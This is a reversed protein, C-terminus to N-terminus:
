TAGCVSIHHSGIDFLAELTRMVAQEVAPDHGGDCVVAVGRVRSYLESALVPSQGNETQVTIYSKSLSGENQQENQLFKGENGCDLTIMVQVRGVGVIGSLLATVRAELAEEAEKQSLFTVQQTDTKDERQNKGGFVILGMGICIALVFYLIMKSSKGVSVSFM